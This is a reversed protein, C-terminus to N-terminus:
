KGFEADPIETRTGNLETSIKKFGAASGIQHPGQLKSFFTLNTDYNSTLSCLESKVLKLKTKLWRLQCCSLWQEYDFFCIKFFVGRYTSLVCLFCKLLIHLCFSESVVIEFSTFFNSRVHNRLFAMNRANKSAFTIKANKVDLNIFGNKYWFFHM